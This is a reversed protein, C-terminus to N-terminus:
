LYNRRMPKNTNFDIEVSDNHWPNIIEEVRVKEGYLSFPLIKVLTTFNDIQFYM